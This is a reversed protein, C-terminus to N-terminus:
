SHSVLLRGGGVGGKGGLTKAAASVHNRIQNKMM